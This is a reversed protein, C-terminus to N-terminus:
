NTHKERERVLLLLDPEEERVRSILDTLPAMDLSDSTSFPGAAVM